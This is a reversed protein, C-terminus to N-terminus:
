FWGIHAVFRGETPAHIHRRGITKLHFVAKEEAQTHGIVEVQGVSVVEDRAVVRQSGKGGEADRESLHSRKGRAPCCHCLWGFGRCLFRMNVVFGEM